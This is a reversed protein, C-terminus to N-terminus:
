RGRRLNCLILPARSLVRVEVGKGSDQIRVPHHGTARQLAGMRGARTNDILDAFQRM